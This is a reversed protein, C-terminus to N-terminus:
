GGPTAALLGSSLVTFAREALAQLEADDAYRGVAAEIQDILEPELMQPHTGAEVQRLLAMDAERQADVAPPTPEPTPDPTVPPMPEPEAERQERARQASLSEIRKRTRSIEGNNNTLQYDAFGIRGAFDKTKLTAIQTDSIGMARLGDDNGAKILKNAKKMFEQRLQLAALKLQLKEIARPDDSM